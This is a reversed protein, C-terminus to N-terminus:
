KGTQAAAVIADSLPKDVKRVASAMLLAGILMAMQSTDKNWAASGIAHGSLGLYARMGRAFAEQIEPGQRAVEAALTAVPCM